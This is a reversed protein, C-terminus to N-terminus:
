GKHELQDALWPSPIHAMTNWPPFMVSVPLFFKTPKNISNCNDQEKEREGGGGLSVSEEGWTLQCITTQTWPSHLCPGQTLGEGDKM